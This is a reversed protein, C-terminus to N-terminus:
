LYYRNADFKSYIKENKSCELIDFLLVTSESFTEDRSSCSQSFSFNRSSERHESFRAYELYINIIIM